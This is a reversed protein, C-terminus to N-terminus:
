DDLLLVRATPRVRTEGDMPGDQRNAGQRAPPPTIGFEPGCDSEAFATGTPHRNLWPGGAHGHLVRGGM